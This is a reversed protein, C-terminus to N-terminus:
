SMGVMAMMERETASIIGTYRTNKFGFITSHVDDRHSALFPLSSVVKLGPMGNLWEDVTNTDAGGADPNWDAIWELASRNYVNFVMGMMHPTHIMHSEGLRRTKLIEPRGAVRTMVGNFVDWDVRDLYRNIANFYAPFDPGFLADDECITLRRAGSQLAKTAVTKYSWAAGKWGPLLRIGDFMKCDPQGNDLFGERRHIHEPLSICVRSRSAIPEGMALVDTLYEEPAIAGIFVLWRGIALRVAGRNGLCPVLMIKAIAAGFDVAQNLTKETTVVVSPCASFQEKLLLVTEPECHSLYASDLVLAAIDRRQLDSPLPNVLVHRAEPCDSSALLNRRKLEGALQATLTGVGAVKFKKGSQRPGERLLAADHCYKIRSTVGSVGERRLIHLAKLFINLMEEIGFEKLFQVASRQICRLYRFLVNAYLNTKVRIIALVKRWRLAGVYSHHFSQSISAGLNPMSDAIASTASAVACLVAIRRTLMAATPNTASVTCTNTENVAVRALADSRPRATPRTVLPM